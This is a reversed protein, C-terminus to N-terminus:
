APRTIESPHHTLRQHLTLFASPDVVDENQRIITAIGMAVIGHEEVTPISGNGENVVYLQFKETEAPSRPSDEDRACIEVAFSQGVSDTLLLGLAGNKIEGIKDLTCRGIKSGVALPAVLKAGLSGPETSANPSAADAESDAGQTRIKSVVSRAIVPALAVGSGLATVVFRRSVHRSSM